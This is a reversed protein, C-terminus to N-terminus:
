KVQFFSAMTVYEDEKKSVGLLLPEGPSPVAAAVLMSSSSQLSDDRNSCSSDHSLSLELEETSVSCDSNQTSHPDTALTLDSTACHIVQVREQEVSEAVPHINLPSFEEPKLNLLLAVKNPKCNHLNPQPHPISPWMYPFIKKKWFIGLISTLVVLSLLCVVLKRTLKEMKDSQTQVDPISFTFASSWESWSGKYFRLPIARAKVHYISNKHLHELDIAMTDSSSVNQIMNDINWIFLQFLQNEVNLYDNEYPTRIHFVAQNSEPKVTMNWVEPSRPKVIEKLQVRKMVTRESRLRINLELQLLPRLKPSTVSDGPVSLCRKKNELHVFFCAKLSEVRDDKDDESKSGTLKCTLSCGATAIHSTCSIQSELDIDPEGSEALCAAPLLLLLLLPEAVRCGFLM